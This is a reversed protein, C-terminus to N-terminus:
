NLLSLGPFNLQVTDSSNMGNLCVVIMYEGIEAESVSSVTLSYIDGSSSTTYRADNAIDIPTGQHYWSVTATNLPSAFVRAELTTSTDRLVYQVNSRIVVAPNATYQSLM